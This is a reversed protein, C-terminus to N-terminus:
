QAEKDPEVICFDFYFAGHKDKRARLKVSRWENVTLTAHGLFRPLDVALQGRLPLSYEEKDDTVLLHRDDIKRVCRVWGLKLCDLFTLNALNNVLEPEKPGPLFKDKM